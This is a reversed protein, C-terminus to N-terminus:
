GIFLQYNFIENLKPHPSFVRQQHVANTCHM